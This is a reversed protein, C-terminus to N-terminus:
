RSDKRRVSQSTSVNARGLVNEAHSAEMSTLIMRGLAEAIQPVIANGLARLRDVRNPIGHAVRGLEPEPLWFGNAQRSGRGGNGTTEKYERLRRRSRPMGRRKSESTDAVDM